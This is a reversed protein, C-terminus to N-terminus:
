AFLGGGFAPLRIELLFCFILWIALVVISLVMHYKKKKNGLFILTINTFLLSDWLFGLLEMFGVYACLLLIFIINNCETQFDKESYNEKKRTSKLLLYVSCLVIMFAILYPVTASNIISTESVPIVISTKTLFFLLGSLIAGFIGTCLNTPIRVTKEKRM